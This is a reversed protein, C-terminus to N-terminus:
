KLLLLLSRNTNAKADAERRVAANMYDNNVGIQAQQAQMAQANTAASGQRHVLPGLGVGMTNMQMYRVEEEYRRRMEQQMVDLQRQQDFSIAM